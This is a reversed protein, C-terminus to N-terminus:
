SGGQKKKLKPTKSNSGRHSIELREGLAGARSKGLATKTEKIKEEELSHSTM